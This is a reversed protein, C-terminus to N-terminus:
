KIEKLRKKLEFFMRKKFGELQKQSEKMGTHDSLEFDSKSKEYELQVLEKFKSWLNDEVEEM